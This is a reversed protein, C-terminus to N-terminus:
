ESEVQEYEGAGSSDAREEEFRELYQLPACTYLLVRLANRHGQEDQVKSVIEPWSERIHIGRMIPPLKEPQNGPRYLWIPHKWEPPKPEAEERSAGNAGRGVIRSLRKTIKGSIEEMGMVRLRRLHDRRAHFRPPNVVPYVGHSGVGESCSAIVIRSATVPCRRVPAIGKMWVFTFSLDNPFANSIIVDAEDPFPARYAKRAFAEEQAYYQLPNGAAVRVVERDANLHLTVTSRLGITQAVENLDQRFSGEIAFAGRGAGRHRHHLYSIAALQLAGLAIKTGGGFGATSNPYLGGIGIVFDSGAVEPNVLVPTGFSTRGVKVARRKPDHVVLRCSGAALPGVKKHIANAPSLGHTGGSMLIAVNRSPIGADAFQQLVFPLVRFAPTPRNLDDVLILPRSKGRCLERLPPQGVPHELAERIQQDALPPPTRPWLFRVDWGQPFDLQLPLDGHWVGTRLHREAEM